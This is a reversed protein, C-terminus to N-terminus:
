NYRQRTKQFTSILAEKWSLPADAKKFVWNLTPVLRKLEDVTIEAIITKNQANLVTLDLSYLLNDIEKKRGGPVKSYM